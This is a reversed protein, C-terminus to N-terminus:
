EIEEIEFLQLIDHSLGEDEVQCEQFKKCEKIVQKILCSTCKRCPKNYHFCENLITWGTYICPCNKVVYKNDM